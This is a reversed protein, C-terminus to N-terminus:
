KDELVRILAAIKRHNEKSASIQTGRRGTSKITEYGYIWVRDVQWVRDDQFVELLAIITKARKESIPYTKGVWTSVDVFEGNGTNLYSKALKNTVYLDLDGDQDFDAFHTGNGIATTPAHAPKSREERLQQIQKELARLRQEIRQRQTARKAM